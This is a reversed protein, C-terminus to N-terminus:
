RPTASNRVFLQKGSMRIKGTDRLRGLARTVSVRHAGVLFGIEEHTLAFAITWGGPARAGVEWAVNVLVEYLRDELNPESLAGVKGSLQQIRRSLNRIVVLGVDPYNTVLAEFTMRDFGCTLTPELCTAGVPYTGQELLVSEGLLDGAKRIDLTVSRGDETIKWLKVSGMKILYISDARDGQRFLHEGAALRKRMLEKAVKCLAEHPAGEFLWIQEFCRPHLTAGPGALEMCKCAAQTCGVIMIAENSPEM